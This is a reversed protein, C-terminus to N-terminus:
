VVGGLFFAGALFTAYRVDCLVGLFFAGALFTAYRVDCLAGRFFSDGALFAAYRVDCVVVVVVLGLFFNTPSM